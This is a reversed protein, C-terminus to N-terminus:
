LNLVKCLFEGLTTTETYGDNDVTIIHVSANTRPKSLLAFDPHVFELRFGRQTLKSITANRKTKVTSTEM